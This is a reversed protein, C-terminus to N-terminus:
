EHHLGVQKKLQTLKTNNGWFAMPEYDVYPYHGLNLKLTYKKTELHEEVLRRVSIPKGSCCNVIGSYHNLKALFILDKAVEKVHMYDRLQEGGSMNFQTDGNAIAKDVLSLLSRESQGEGYMYFLRAWRYHFTYEKQLAEVFKRLSDKAIGYTSSPQTLMEESLSGNVGYELCTGSIVIDKLGHQVLNTIFQYNNFLHEKLHNEHKCNSLDGWSLHIVVDPEQFFHFLDETSQSTIDYPIYEVHDYWDDHRANELHSSTAIITDNSMELLINIVHNGIFGTAGTVLIKM